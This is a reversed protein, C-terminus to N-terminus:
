TAQGRCDVCSRAQSTAAPSGDNGTFVQSPEALWLLASTSKESRTLMIRSKGEGEGDVSHRDLQENAGVDDLGRGSPPHSSRM